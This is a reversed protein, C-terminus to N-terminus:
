SQLAGELVDLKRQMTAYRERLEDDEAAKAMASPNEFDIDYEKKARSIIKTEKEMAAAEKEKIDKRKEHIELLKNYEADHKKTTYALKTRLNKIENEM